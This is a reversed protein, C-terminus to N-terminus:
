GADTLGILPWVCGRLFPRHFLIPLPLVLWGLTWLRGIWASSDIPQGRLSLIGEIQMAIAHLVFYLFPLGFGAQVPVSIALEHLLGSFLFAAVTAVRIGTVGRLPRFVAFTTMESFALNWRRGWFETWSASQLPARFLPHCDAGALRWVGALLNFLGFHMILSLAPLLFFTALWVRTSLAMSEQPLAGIGWALAFLLGGAALNGGGRKLYEQRRAKSPGPVGTFTSPRMGPWGIAFLFWSWAGLRTRGASQEEVSVIVKMGFLLAGILAVMRIGAPESAALREIGVVAGVVLLWAGMRAIKRNPFRTITFGVLLEALIALAIWGLTGPHHPIYGTM